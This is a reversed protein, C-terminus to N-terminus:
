TTSCAACSWRPSSSRRGSNPTPPVHWFLCDMLQLLTYSPKDLPTCQPALHHKGVHRKLWYEDVSRKYAAYLGCILARAGNTTRDEALRQEVARATASVEIAAEVRKYEHLVLIDDEHRLRLGLDRDSDNM